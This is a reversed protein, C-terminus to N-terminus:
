AAAANKKKILYFGSPDLVKGDVVVLAKDIYENTDEDFYRRYTMQLNTNIAYDNFTGFIGIVDGESATDYDKILDPEVLTVDRGYFKGVLNGITGETAEKFIPRNNADKMTLLYSEVTSSPFLFEGSGRKSLPVKAFLKKRWATWDGIEEPTLEVVNKVKSDKTIGLPQGSGTGSIIAEDMAKVYAEVLVRVIESEFVDLSVINALLSTAIRIEGMHYSFEVYTKIDGVKQKGSPTTENIWKFTASLNSIPFKVGGKINLKRVKAYVQGYVKSVEKIFESMITTPIIAGIDTTLTTGADGGARYEAPIPTGKQAYAKFAMRYERTAYPDKKDKDESDTPVLGRTVVNVVTPQKTEPEPVLTKSRAEEFVKKAANLKDYEASLTKVKEVDNCNRIEAVIENMRKIIQELNM